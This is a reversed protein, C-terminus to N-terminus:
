FRKHRTSLQVNSLVVCSGRLFVSICNGLILNAKKKYKSSLSCCLVLSLDKDKYVQM